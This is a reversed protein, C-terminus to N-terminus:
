AVLRTSRRLCIRSLLQEYAVSGVFDGIMLLALDYRFAGAPMAHLELFENLEPMMEVTAGLLFAGAGMLARLLAKNEALSAMFPHGKYNAAFTALTMSSSVLYVVTNLVNPTFEGDPNLSAADTPAYPKAWSVATILACLHICFQGVISLFMQVTFVSSQPREASLRDLPKARSIFLFMMAVCMGTCTMQTDGLKVGDLYLVSLSYASVLCQLALIQYMQMTTVLTCRGQRVIDLCCDVQSRKSTFPAAVSADGLPVVSPGDSLDEMLRDRLAGPPPAGRRSGAVRRSSATAPASGASSASKSKERNATPAKSSYESASALLAVGVHAQKLAGIDNTGDGCMLTVRGSSKLSTIITQKQDPSVRAFVSTARILRSRQEDDVIAGLAAGTVCLSARFPPVITKGDFPTASADDTVAIWDLGSDDSRPTLIVAPAESPIITLRRSVECATLAHDGTIMVVHHSSSRFAKVTSQSLPKIPSQLVMFGVFILDREVERRELQMAQSENVVAHNGVRLHRYAMALVRCGLRSFHRHVCDFDPPVSCCLEAIAEPAGKSVVASESDNVNIICTMRRLASEFAFRRVIRLQEGQGRVSNVGANSGSTQWGVASLAAKELPDGVLGGDLHVLSHCTGIVRRSWIPAQDAPCLDFKDDPEYDPPASCAVGLFEFTDDTLTGTKDFCVTDVAGAFPIRFPETCFIRKQMLASLSTNVALSLEMPLEPPVVSTVIMICNLILKARSRTPDYWSHILVYGAAVIAFLLLCAIFLFSEANNVTVRETSCLITSLLRGQSTHFGTRLVYVICGGDAPRKVSAPGTEDIDLPKSLEGSAALPEKLQPVSEGTLLSEDVVCHGRILVVDCPVNRVLGEGYRKLSLLDGPLLESTSVTRWRGARYVTVEYPAARMSRVQEMSVLRRKVVSMEFLVLMCLTLLSYYWYEDLLWLGVCFMQFVFFPATAHEAFLTSFLPLPVDFLNLGYKSRKIFMEDDDHGLGQARVYHQRAHATPFDLEVFASHDQSWIFKRRQHTFGRQGAIKEIKCLSWSSTPSPKVAVATAHRVSRVRRYRIFCKLSVSWSTSLITIGHCALLLICSVFVLITHTSWGDMFALPSKSPATASTAMTANSDAIETINVVASSDDAAAEVVAEPSPSVTTVETSVDVSPSTVVAYIAALAIAYGIVFPGVDLRAPSYRPLRRYLRSTFVSPSQVVTDSPIDLM